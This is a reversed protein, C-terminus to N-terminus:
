YSVHNQILLNPLLDFIFVSNITCINPNAIALVNIDVYNTCLIFSLKLTRFHNGSAITLKIMLKAIPNKNVM